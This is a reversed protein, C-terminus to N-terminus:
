QVLSEGMMLATGSSLLSVHVADGHDLNNRTHKEHDHQSNKDLATARLNRLEANAASARAMDVCAPQLIPTIGIFLTVRIWSAAPTSKATTSLTIM